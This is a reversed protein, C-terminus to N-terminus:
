MIDTSSISTLNSLLTRRDLGTRLLEDDDHDGDDGGDSGSHRRQLRESWSAPRYAPFLQQDAAMASLMSASSFFYCADLPDGTGTLGNSSSGGDIVTERASPCSVPSAPCSSSLMDDLFNFAAIAEREKEDFRLFFSTKDM